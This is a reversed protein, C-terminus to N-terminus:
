LSRDSSGDSTLSSSYTRGCVPDAATSGVAPYSSYAATSGGTGTTACTSANSLPTTAISTNTV